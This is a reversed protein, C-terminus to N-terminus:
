HLPSQLSFAKNNRVWFQAVKVSRKYNTNLCVPIAWVDRIFSRRFSTISLLFLFFFARCVACFPGWKKQKHRKLRQKYFLPCRTWAQMRLTSRPVQLVTRSISLRGVIHSEPQPQKVEQCPNATGMSYSVWQLGCGTHVSHFRFLNWARAPFRVVKGPNALWHHLWHVLQASKFFFARSIESESPQSLLIAINQYM